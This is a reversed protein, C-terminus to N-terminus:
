DLRETAGTNSACARTRDVTVTVSAHAARCVVRGHTVVVRMPVTRQSWWESSSGAPSLKTQKGLGGRLTM